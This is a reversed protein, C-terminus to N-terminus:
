ALMDITGGVADYKAQGQQNFTAAEDEAAALLEEISIKGDKNTDLKDYVEAASSASSAGGSPPTGSPPPGSPGAGGAGASKRESEKAAMFTENESESIAGDGDTDVEKMLETVDTAEGTRSVGASLELSDVKGDKNADLKDFMEKHKAAASTTGLSSLVSSVSSSVSNVM